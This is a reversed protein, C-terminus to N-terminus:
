YIQNKSLQCKELHGSMKYFFCSILFYDASLIILLQLSFSNVSLIAEDDKFHTLNFCNQDWIYSWSM